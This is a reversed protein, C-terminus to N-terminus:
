PYSEGKPIVLIGVSFFGWLSLHEGTIDERPIYYFGLLKWLGPYILTCHFVSYKHVFLEPEWYKVSNIDM